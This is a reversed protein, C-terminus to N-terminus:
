VVYFEGHPSQRRYGLWFFAASVFALFGAAAFVRPLLYIMSATEQGAAFWSAAALSSIGLFIGGGVLVADGWFYRRSLFRKAAFGFFALGAFIILHTGFPLASYADFLAGIVGGVWLARPLPSEIIFMLYLFVVLGFGLFPLPFAGSLFGLASLILFIFLRFPSIM